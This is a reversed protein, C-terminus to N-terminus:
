HNASSFTEHAHARDRARQGVVGAVRRSRRVPQGQFQMFVVLAHRRFVNVVAPKGWDNGAKSTSEACSWLVSTACNYLSSRIIRRRRAMPPPLDLEFSFFFSLSYLELWLLYGNRTLATALVLPPQRSSVGSLLPLSGETDRRWPNLPPLLIFFFVECSTKPM